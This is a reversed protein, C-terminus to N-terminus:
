GSARLPNSNLFRPAMLMSNWNSFCIVAVIVVFWWSLVGETEMKVLNSLEKDPDLEFYTRPPRPLIHAVGTVERPCKTTSVSLQAMADAQYCWSFFGVSGGAQRGSKRASGQFSNFNNHKRSCSTTDVKEQSHPAPAQPKPEWNQDLVAGLAELTALLVERGSWGGFEPLLTLCPQPRDPHPNAAPPVPLLLLM